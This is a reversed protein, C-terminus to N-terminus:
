AAPPPKNKGLYFLVAVLTLMSVVESLVGCWRSLALTDLSRTVFSWLVGVVVSQSLKKRSENDPNM